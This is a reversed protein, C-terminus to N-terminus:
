KRVKLLKKPICPKPARNFISPANRHGKSDMPVEIRNPKRNHVTEVNGAQKVHNASQFLSQDVTNKIGDVVNSAIQTLVDQNDSMARLGEESFKGEMSQAAHLKTAMLSLTAEQTTDSYYLFYVTIDKKQSLRWSRRSAQRMTNLNYGLQYFIITTFDLLNLGTEVLSPNCILVDYGDRVLKNIFEERKEAKVSAKLEASKYGYSNITLTIHDGLNTAGVDNYYVLVKEGATVKTNIIDLLALDKNTTFEEIEPAAFLVTNEESLEDEMCHPADPITLMRRCYQRIYKKDGERGTAMRRMFQEYGNYYRATTEDMEVSYPIETYNPLGETMDELSVFVTNNLLFKTFVLSSIGPLLKNSRRKVTRGDMVTTTSNVGFIRNFEAEDEYNFGERKMAQPLLRYLLYYMSNVYGNMLTGTMTITKRCSQALIHFAHGQETKGKYAQAEDFIGYDFVNPMRKKIYKAVPYKKTGNFRRDIEGTRILSNHQDSLNDFLEADKKTMKVGSNLYYDMLIDISDVHFWGSKGLKVWQLNEDDRNMATWLKNKCMVTKYIEEKPDYIKVDNTCIDNYSYEKAFDTLELPVKRKVKRNSGPYAPVNIIKTLVQGCEPCVFVNNAKIMDGHENQYYGVRKFLVAPRNGYGIKAIEKSMIVFSNEIKYPDELRDKIALLEEVNHIIYSRSNPIFRAIENKWNNVLHSPCMVLVNIGKNKNANHVYCASSAMLTKGAGMEGVLFTNKNLDMNNVIAQIASRQAEYLNVGANYYVYDDINYLYNDYTDEGPIFKPRFSMQIKKALGEGFLQLYNDLGTCSDLVISHENSGDINIEKTNLGEHVINELVGRTGILVYCILPQRDQLNYVKTDLCRFRSQSELRARIYPIWEELIPISSYKVLRKYLEKDINAENNTFIYSTYTENNDKTNYTDNAYAIMHMYDSNTAKKTKITYKFNSTSSYKNDVCITHTRDSNLMPKIMNITSSYGMMSIFIVQGYENTIVTDAKGDSFGGISINLYDDSREISM